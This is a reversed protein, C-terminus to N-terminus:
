TSKIKNNSKNKKKNLNIRNHINNHHMYTHLSYNLLIKTTIKNAKNGYYATAAIVSINPQYCQHYTIELLEEDIRVPRRWIPSTGLELLQTLIAIM